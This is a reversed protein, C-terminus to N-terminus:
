EKRNTHKTKRRRRAVVLGRWLGAAAFWITLGAMALLTVMRAVRSSNKTSPQKRVLEDPALLRERSGGEVVWAVDNSFYAKASVSTSSALIEPFYAQGQEASPGISCQTIWNTKAARCRPTEDVTEIRAPLWWPRGGDEYGYELTLSGRLTQHTLGKVRGRDDKQMALTVEQGRSSRGALKAQDARRLTGEVLFPWLGLSLVPKLIDEQMRVESAVPDQASQFIKGSQSYSMQSSRAVWAVQKSVGYVADNTGLADHLSSIGQLQRIYFGDPQFAGAFRVFVEPPAPAFASADLRCEITQIPLSRNAFAIFLDVPDQGSDNPPAGHGGAAADSDSGYASLLYASMCLCLFAAPRIMNPM